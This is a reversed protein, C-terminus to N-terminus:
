PQGGQWFSECRTSINQMLEPTSELYWYTDSINTHGMYASLAVIHRDIDGQEQQHVELTRCAFTHRLDHIRPRRWGRPTPDLGITKLIQVFTKQVTSHVLGGGSNSLFIHQNDTLFDNRKVLYKDLGLRVTQHLPVLRSKKFKSDRIMLGDMTIDDLMLNLAESIRVGTCVLLAFLTSYTHPRISDVSKLQCAAYLLRNIEDQTFIFPPKRKKKGGFVGKVPIEHQSDEQQAFRALRIVTSYRHARQGLSPAQSAWDITTKMTIHFQGREASFRAFSRLLYEPVKLEFGAARRLSLYADVIDMIM